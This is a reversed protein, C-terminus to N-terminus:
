LARLMQAIRSGQRASNKESVIWKQAALGFAHLEGRPMRLLRELQQALQEESDVAVFYSLYDRPICPLDYALLPTGSAMYEMNKSPFSFATWAEGSPRPNILVSAKKEQMVVDRNTLEGRYSIRPDRRGAEEISPVSGGFGYFVLRAEPCDIQEFARILAAVGFIDELLGAMMCVKEPHKNELTNEETLVDADVVGEVVTYPRGKPNLVANMQETLFVYSGYSHILGNKIRYPIACLGTRTEGARISPVDTVVATTKIKCFRSVLWLALSLEGLIIDCVVVGDPHRRHWRLIERAGNLITALRNQWRGKRRPLYTYRVGNETEPPCTLDDEGNKLIIRQSVAEVSCGNQQLGEVLLRNFKQGAHSFVSGYKQFMREYERASCLASLYLVDM